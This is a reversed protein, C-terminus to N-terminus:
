ASRRATTAMADLGLASEVLSRQEELHVNLYGVAPSASYDRGAYLLERDKGLMGALHRRSLMFFWIGQNRPEEQAWCVQQAKPYRDLLAQIEERPFPYLQEVRALAVHNLQHERRKELLDYFVKGSCLVLRTVRKPDIPDIDDIVLEFGRESLDDLSSTALRHRLLSKPSMVCLPKRVPRLVQRRLLHFIQAPTTPMCVQMNDEACLQLYRELRASSHEPGQGDYGHPLLMVLGCYREWKSESSSLFQDIVVQAGNVFDGFQAEWIVLGRPEATAYGYEFALVAEESLLSNIARFGPQGEYLHQLPTWTGSERQNHFVAHRHFFTGRQSDQGSLRVARGDALLTAYALNEAFGWDMPREGAAMELRTDVIRKVSRNLEFDEPHACLARGLKELKARPVTTDCPERWSVSLYPRWDVVFPLESSAIRCHPRSVIQDSELAQLYM